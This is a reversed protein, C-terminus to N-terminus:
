CIKPMTENPVYQEWEAPTLAGRRRLADCISRYVAVGAVIARNASESGTPFLFCGRCDHPRIARVLESQATPRLPVALRGRLHQVPRRFLRPAGSTPGHRMGCGCPPIGTM